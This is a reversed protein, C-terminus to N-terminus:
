LRYADFHGLDPKEYGIIPLCIPGEETVEGAAGGVDSHRGSLVFTRDHDVIDVSMEGPHEYRRWRVDDGVRPMPLGTGAPILAVVRGSETWARPGYQTGLARTGTLEVDFTGIRNGSRTWMVVRWTEPSRFSTTACYVTLLLAVIALSQPRTGRGLPSRMLPSRPPSASSRTRQM